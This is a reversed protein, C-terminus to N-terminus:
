GVIKNEKLYNKLKFEECTKKELVYQFCLEFNNFFKFPIPIENIFTYIYTHSRKHSSLFFVVDFLFVCLGIWYM